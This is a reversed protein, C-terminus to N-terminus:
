DLRIPHPHWELGIAAVNRQSAESCASTVCASSNFSLDNYQYSVFMSFHRGLQHQLAAGAYLYWFSTTNSPLLGFVGAQIQSNYAYGVDAIANWTRGLPRSVSFHVIDSVAGLFYGSGSTNVRDYFIGISTRPFRYRLSAQASATIRHSVGGLAPSNIITVQPGGGFILDMRGTIRHGFLVNVLHTTFTSGAFNPYHFDQFGYLVAIQNKRSLQYNYAAEGSVQNSDIFGSTNDTFHVLGYGGALTLASRRTLDQDIDVIAMNSIRPAQGLSGFQGPGFIGNLSAGIAGGIYGIGDLGLSYAASDGYVGFGFSGEPLYSFNDRLTVQGSKWQFRQEADLEQVQNSSPSYDSYYAIGGVYELASSTRGGVKQFMLSGLARTVGQISSSGSTQGVNSDLSESIHAGPLLFSRSPMPSELSPQDLGAIPPNESSIVAGTGAQSSTDESQAGASSQACTTGLVLMLFMVMPIFQLKKM